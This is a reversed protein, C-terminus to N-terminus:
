KGRYMKKPPSMKEEFVRRHLVNFYWYANGDVFSSFIIFDSIYTCHLYIYIKIM